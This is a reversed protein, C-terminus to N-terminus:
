SSSYPDVLKKIKHRTIKIFITHTGSFEIAKCERFHDIKKSKNYLDDNMINKFYRYRNNLRLIDAFTLKMLGYRIIIILVQKAYNVIDMLGHHM